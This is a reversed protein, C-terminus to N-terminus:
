SRIVLWRQFSCSWPWMIWNLIKCEWSIDKTHKISTLSPRYPFFILHCMLRCLHSLDSPHPMLTFSISNWIVLQSLSVLLLPCLRPVIAFCTVITHAHTTFPPYHNPSSIYPELDLPLGFLVHNSTTRFPQWAPLNLLSSAITRPKSSASLPHNTLLFPTLPHINRKTGAWGYFPQTTTHAYIIFTPSFWHFYEDQWPFIM